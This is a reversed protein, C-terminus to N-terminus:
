RVGTAALYHVAAATRSHVNLRERIQELHKKATTPAIQLELAIQENTLGQAVLALVQQQRMTLQELGPPSAEREAGRRGLAVSLTRANQHSVRLHPRLRDLLSRDHESFGYQDRNLAIAIVTDDPPMLTMSLQTETSVPRYFDNYLDLRRFATQSVFDSILLSRQDGTRAVHAIVPHQHLHRSFAEDHSERAVVHPEVVVRQAAGGVTIENYSCHICGILRRVVGLAHAPYEESPLVAYLETLAREFRVAERGASTM